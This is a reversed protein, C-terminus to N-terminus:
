FPNHSTMCMERKPVVHVFYMRRKFNLIMDIISKVNEIHNDDQINRLLMYPIIKTAAKNDRQKIMEIILMLNVASLSIFIFCFM